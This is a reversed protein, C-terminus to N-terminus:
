DLVIVLYKERWFTKPQKIMVYGEHDGMQALQFSGARRKPLIEAVKGDVRIAPNQTLDIQQFESSDADAALVTTSGLLGWLFGGEESIIGKEKLEDKSGVVYYVTNMRNKQGTITAENAEITADKEGIERTKDAITWELNKVQSELSAISQERQAVSTKLNEVLAELSGYKVSSHHLETQLGAIRRRNKKLNIDVAHLEDLVAQRVQERTLRPKGEADKANRTLRVEKSKAHELDIYIQNVSEMIQDIYKDRSAIDSRLLTAEATMDAYDKKLEKKEADECGAFITMALIVAVVFFTKTRM